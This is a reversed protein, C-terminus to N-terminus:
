CCRGLFHCPRVFLSPIMPLYVLCAVLSKGVFMLGVTCYPRVACPADGDNM